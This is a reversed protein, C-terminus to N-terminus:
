VGRHGNHDEPKKLPETAVVQVEVNSIKPLLRDTIDDLRKLLRLVLYILFVNLGSNILFELASSDM